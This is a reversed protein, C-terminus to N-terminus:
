RHREAKPVLHEAKFHANAYDESEFKEGCSQCLYNENGIRVIRLGLPDEEIKITIGDENREELALQYEEERFYEDKMVDEDSHEM